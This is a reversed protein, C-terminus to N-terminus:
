AAREEGRVVREFTVRERAELGTLELGLRDREKVLEALRDFAADIRAREMRCATCAELYRAHLTLEAM